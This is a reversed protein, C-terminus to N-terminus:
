YESVDLAASRKAVSIVRVAKARRYLNNGSLWNIEHRNKKSQLYCINRCTIIKRKMLLVCDILKLKNPLFAGGRPPM